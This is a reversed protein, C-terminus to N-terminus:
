EYHNTELSNHPLVTLTMTDCFFLQWFYTSFIVLVDLCVKYNLNCVCNFTSYVVGLFYIVYDFHNYTGIM